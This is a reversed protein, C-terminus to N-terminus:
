RAVRASAMIPCSAASRSLNLQRGGGAVATPRGRGPKPATTCRVFRSRIMSSLARKPPDPTSSSGSTWRCRWTGSVWACRADLTAYLPSGAHAPRHRRQGAGATATREHAARHRAEGAVSVARNPKRDRRARNRGYAMGGLRTSGRRSARNHQRGGARSRVSSLFYCLSAM